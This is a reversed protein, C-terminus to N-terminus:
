EVHDRPALRIEAAVSGYCSGRTGFPDPKSPNPSESVNCFAPHPLSGPVHAWMASYWLWGTANTPNWFKAPSNPNYGQNGFKSLYQVLKYPGTLKSSEAIFTDLTPAMELGVTPTGVVLVFKNVAGGVWSLAAPGLRDPWALVPALDAFSKSWQAGGGGGPTTAAIGSYYEWQAPDNITAPSLHSIRLMYLHSGQTWTCKYGATGNCGHALLYHKGDPSHENNRGFDVWRAQQVKFQFPQPAAPWAQQFINSSSNLAPLVWTQGRDTSHQWGVFPGGVCWANAGCSQPCARGQVNAGNDESYTGQYLVNDFDAGACPYRGDLEGGVGAPAAVSGHSELRLDRPSSGNFISWGTKADPGSCGVSM